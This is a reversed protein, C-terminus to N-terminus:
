EYWKPKFDKIGFTVFNHNDSLIIIKNVGSIVIVDNSKSSYPNSQSYTTFNAALHYKSAIVDNPHNLAYDKIDGVNYTHIFWTRHSRLDEEKQKNEAIIMNCIKIIDKGTLEGYYSYDTIQPEKYWSIEDSLADRESMYSCEEIFAQKAYEGYKSGNHQPQNCSSLMIFLSLIPILYLKMNTIKLHNSLKQLNISDTLTSSM